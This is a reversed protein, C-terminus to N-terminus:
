IATRESSRFGFRSPRSVVFELGADLGRWKRISALVVLLVDTRPFRSFRDLSSFAGLAFLCVIPSSCFSWTQSPFALHGTRWRIIAPSQDSADSSCRSAIHTHNKHRDLNISRYASRCMAAFHLAVALFRWWSTSHDKGKGHRGAEKKWCNCM